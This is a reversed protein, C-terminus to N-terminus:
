KEANKRPRGRRRKVPAFSQPRIPLQRNHLSELIPLLLAGPKWYPSENLWNVQWGKRRMPAVTESDCTIIRGDILHSEAGRWYEVARQPNSSQLVTHFNSKKSPFQELLWERSPPPEGNLAKSVNCRCWQFYAMGLARAWAGSAQSPPIAGLIEGLPLYQATEASTTLATWERSAVLEVRVPVNDDNEPFLSPQVPTQEKMIQWPTTHIETEIQQGTTKDFYPVTRRGSIHTRAGYRIAHWIKRRREIAEQPNRAYGGMTKRAVDDLDVWGGAYSNAPLPAPPALLHSIYLWALGDDLDLEAAARQLLEIGHGANREDETLATETWFAANPRQHRLTGSQENDKFNKLGRGDSATQIFATWEQGTHVSFAVSQRPKEADPSGLIAPLDYGLAQNRSWLTAHLSELDTIIVKRSNSVSDENEGNVEIIGIQNASFRFACEGLVCGVGGPIPHFITNTVWNAGAFDLRKQAAASVGSASVLGPPIDFNLSDPGSEDNISVHYALLVTLSHSASEPWRLQLRDLGHGAEPWKSKIWLLRDLSVEVEGVKELAPGIYELRDEGQPKSSKLSSSIRFYSKEALTM